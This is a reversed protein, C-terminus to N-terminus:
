DILALKKIEVITNAPETQLITQWGRAAGADINEQRDDIYLIEQGRKGSMNELAQYIKAAPKM